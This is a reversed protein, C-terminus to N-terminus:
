AVPIKEPESTGDDGKGRNTLIRNSKIRLGYVVEPKSKNALDALTISDLFSDVHEAL